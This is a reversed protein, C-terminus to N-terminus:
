GANTVKAERPGPDPFNLPERPLFGMAIVLSDHYKAASIEGEPTFSFYRRKLYKGEIALLGTWYAKGAGNRYYRVGRYQSDISSSKRRRFPNQSASIRNIQQERVEDNRNSIVTEAPMAPTVLDRSQTKARQPPPSAKCFKCSQPRYIGNKVHSQHLELEPDPKHVPPEVFSLAPASIKQCLSCGPRRINFKVHLEHQEEETFIHEPAEEFSAARRFVEPGVLREIIQGEAVTSYTNTSSRKLTNSM